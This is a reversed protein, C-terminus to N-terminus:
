RYTDRRHGIRIISVVRIEDAVSYLIRYTGVRVRHVGDEGRLPIARPPRPDVALLDIAARVRQQESRDLRALQKRARRSMLVRYQPTM